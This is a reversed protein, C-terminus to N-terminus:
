KKPHSQHAPNIRSTWLVGFLQHWLMLTMHQPVGLHMPNKRYLLNIPTMSITATIVHITRVEESIAAEGRNHAAWIESVTTKSVGTAAVVRARTHAGNGRGEAKEAKFYQYVRVVLQREHASLVHRPAM